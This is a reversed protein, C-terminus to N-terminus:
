RSFILLLDIIIFCFMSHFSNGSAFSETEILIWKTENWGGNISIRNPLEYTRENSEPKKSPALHHPVSVTVAFRGCVIQHPLSISEINIYEGIENDAGYWGAACSEPKSHSFLHVYLHFSFKNHISQVAGSALWKKSFFFRRAKLKGESIWRNKPMQFKLSFDPSTPQLLMHRLFIGFFFFYSSLAESINEM